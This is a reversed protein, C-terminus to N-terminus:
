LTGPVLSAGELPDIVRSFLQQMRESECLEKSHAGLTAAARSRSFPLVRVSRAVRPGLKERAAGDKMTEPIDSAAEICHVM